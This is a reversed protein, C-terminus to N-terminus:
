FALLPIYNSHLPSVMDKLEQQSGCISFCPIAQFQM